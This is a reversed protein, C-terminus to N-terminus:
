ANTPLKSPKLTNSMESGVLGVATLRTSQGPSCFSMETLPFRSNRDISAARTPGSHSLPSSRPVPQSPMRIKSMVSLAWGMNTDATRVSHPEWVWM